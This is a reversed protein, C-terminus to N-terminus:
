SKEKNNLVKRIKLDILFKNLKKNTM